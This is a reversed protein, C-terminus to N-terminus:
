LKLTHLKDMLQTPLTLSFNSLLSVYGTQYRLLPAQLQVGDVVPMPSTSDVRIPLSGVVASVFMQFLSTDFDGVNSSALGLKVDSPTAQVRLSPSTPTGEVTLVAKLSFQTAFVFAETYSKQPDPLTTDNSVLFTWNFNGTIIAADPSVALSFPAFQTFRWAVAYNPFANFLNPIPQKFTSTVLSFPVVKDSNYVYSLVPKKQYQLLFASNFLYQDVDAQSMYDSPIGIPLDAHPLPAPVPNDPDEFSGTVCVSLYGPPAAAVTPDEVLSFDIRMPFPDSINVAVPASALLHNATESVLSSLANSVADEAASRIKGKVADVLLDYLGSLMSGSIHIDMGNINTLVAVDTLAARGDPNRVVRSSISITSGSVDITVGGSTRLCHSFVCCCHAEWDATIQAGVGSADASVKTVFSAQM